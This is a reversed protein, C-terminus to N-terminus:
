PRDSDARGTPPAPRRRAARAAEARSEIQRILEEISERREILAAYRRYDSLNFLSQVLPEFFLMAQGAVLSLPRGSELALIAPVEMHLEVVRTALRELLAQDSLPAADSAM